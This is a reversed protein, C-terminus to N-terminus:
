REQGVSLHIEAYEAPGLGNGRAKVTYTSPALNSIVYFGADEAVAKREQGTRTDTSSVAANPIVARSADTVTGAIRTQINQGFLLPLRLVLTFCLLRTKMAFVM